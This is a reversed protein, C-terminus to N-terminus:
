VIRCCNIFCTGSPQRQAPPVRSCPSRSRGASDWVPAFNEPTRATRNKENDPTILKTQNNHLSGTAQFKKISRFILPNSAFNNVNFKARIEGAGRTRNQGWIYLWVVKKEKDSHKIKLSGFNNHDWRRLDSFLILFANFNVFNVTKHSVRYIPYTYIM